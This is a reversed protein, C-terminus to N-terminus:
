REKQDAVITTEVDFLRYHAVYQTGCPCTHVVEAGDTYWEVFERQTDLSGCEPCRGADEVTM